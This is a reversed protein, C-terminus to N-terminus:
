PAYLKLGRTEDSFWVAVPRGDPRLALDMWANDGDGQELLVRRARDAIGGPLELLYLGSPQTGRTASRGLAWLTGDAARQVVRPGDEPAIRSVSTLPGPASPDFLGRLLVGARLDPFVVDIQGDDRPLLAVSTGEHGAPPHTTARTGLFPGRGPQEVALRLVSHVVQFDCFAAVASGDQRLHLAHRVHPAQGPGEAVEVIHWRGRATPGFAPVDNPRRALRVRDGRASFLLHPRGRADLVLASGAGADRGFAVDEIDWRPTTPKTGTAAADAAPAARPLQAGAGGGAHLTGLDSPRHAVRLTHDGQHHFSVVPAGGPALALRVFAGAAGASQIVEPLGPTASGPPAVAYLVDGTDADTYAVHVRDLADVEVDPYWGVGRRVQGAAVPEPAPTAVLIVTSPAADQAPPPAESACASTTCALAVLAWAPTKRTM